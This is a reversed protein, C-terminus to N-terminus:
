ATREHAPKRRIFLTGILDLLTFIYLLCFPEFVYRYRPNVVGTLMVVMFLFGLTIVWAIHLKRLPGARCISAFMGAASLLFFLPIGPVTQSGYHQEGFRAGTTMRLWITYLLDFLNGRKLPVYEQNVFDVDAEKLRAFLESNKDALKGKQMAAAVDPRSTLRPGALRPMLRVMWDKYTCSGIQKEQMWLASFDGSPPYITAVLFKNFAIVPLLLPRHLAAEVALRQCFQGYTTHHDNISKLYGVVVSSISKEATTLQEPVLAGHAVREKRLPDIWPAFGPASRPVDPALPLVTAYLLLGAQTNRSSFWTLLCFALAAGGYLLRTKWAGWHIMLVLLLCFCVYLKGEPRSGATLLLAGLLLAFRWRGPWLACATGALLLATVCWLYQFESILTHEYWLMAPNLTALLTAPIIWLKWLSTWLRVLEGIMLTLILGFLHQAWPIVLLSPIRLVLPLAFLIPALFAKKGHLVFHHRRLFTDATILFDETDPHVCGYPYHFLIWARVVVGVILAPLCWLLLQRFRANFFAGRIAAPLGHLSVFSPM